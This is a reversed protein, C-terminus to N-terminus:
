NWFHGLLLLLPCSQPSPAQVPFDGFLFVCADGHVVFRVDIKISAEKQRSLKICGTRTFVQVYFNGGHGLALKLLFPHNPLRNTRLEGSTRVISFNQATIFFSIRSSPPIALSRCRIHALAFRLILSSTTCFWIRLSAGFSRSIRDPTETQM